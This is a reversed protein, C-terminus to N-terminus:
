TELSTIYSICLGKDEQEKKWKYYAELSKKVEEEEDNLTYGDKEALREEIWKATPTLYTEEWYHHEDVLEINGEIHFTIPYVERCYFWNRELAKQAYYYVYDWWSRSSFSSDFVVSGFFYKSNSIIQEISVKIAEWLYLRLLNPFHSYNNESPSQLFYDIFPYNGEPSTYLMLKNKDKPDEWFDCFVYSVPTVWLGEGNFSKLKVQTNITNEMNSVVGLEQEM